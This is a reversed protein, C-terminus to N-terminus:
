LALDSLIFLSFRWIFDLGWLGVGVSHRKMVYNVVWGYLMLGIVLFFKSMMRLLGVTVETLRRGVTKCPSGCYFAFQCPAIEVGAGEAAEKNGGFVWPCSIRWNHCCPSHCREEFVVNNAKGNNETHNSKKSYIPLAFCVRVCLHIYFCMFICDSQLSICTVRNLNSFYTLYPPYHCVWVDGGAPSGNISVRLAVKGGPMFLPTCSQRKKRNWKKNGCKPILFNPYTVGKSHHM